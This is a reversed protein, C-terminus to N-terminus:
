LFNTVRMALLHGVQTGAAEMYHIGKLYDEDMQDTASFFEVQPGLKACLQHAQKNCERCSALVHPGRPTLEPTACIIYHHQPADQSWTTLKQKLQELSRHPEKEYLIDASGVHLILQLKTESQNATEIENEARLLTQEMMAGPKSTVRLRWDSVDKRKRNPRCTAPANWRSGDEGCALSHEPAWHAHKNANLRIFFKLHMAAVYRLWQCKKQAQKLVHARCAKCDQAWLPRFM